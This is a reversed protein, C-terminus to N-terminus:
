GHEAGPAQEGVRGSSVSKSGTIGPRGAESDTKWLKFRGGGVLGCKM